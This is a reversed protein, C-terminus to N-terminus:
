RPYSSAFDAQAAMGRHLMEDKLWVWLGDHIRRLKVANEPGKIFHRLNKSWYKPLVHFVAKHCERLSDFVSDIDEQVHPIPIRRLAQCVAFLMGGWVLLYAAGARQHLANADLIIPGTNSAEEALQRFSDAWILHRAISAIQEDDLRKPKKREKV